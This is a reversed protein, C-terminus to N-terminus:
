NLLAVKLVLHSCHLLLHLLVLKCAGRQLSLELFLLLRGVDVGVRILHGAAVGYDVFQASLQVAGVLLILLQQHFDVSQFLVNHIQFGHDFEKQIRLADRAEVLGLVGLDRQGAHVLVKILISLRRGHISLRCPEEGALHCNCLIDVRQM